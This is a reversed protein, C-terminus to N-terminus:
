PRGSANIASPENECGAASNGIIRCIWNRRAPLTIDQMVMGSGNRCAQAAQQEPSGSGPDGLYNYSITGEILHPRREPVVDYAKCGRYRGAFVPGGSDGQCFASKIKEDPQLNFKLEGPQRTVPKPWTLGFIGFQGGATNSFGYGAITTAESVQKEGALTAPQMAQDSFAADLHVLALDDKFQPESSNGGYKDYVIVRNAAHRRQAYTLLKANNAEVLASSFAPNPTGALWIFDKNSTGTYHATADTGLFCHAATLAWDTAIMTGSCFARSDDLYTITLKVVEPFQSFSFRECRAGDKLDGARCFPSRTKLEDFPIDCDRLGSDLDIFNMMSIGYTAQQSLASDRTAAGGLMRRELGANIAEAPQQGAQQASPQIIVQVFPPGERRVGGVGTGHDVIEQQGEVASVGTGHDIIQPQLPRVIASVGTGGDVIAPPV